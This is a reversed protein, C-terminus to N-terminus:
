WRWVFRSPRRVEPTCQESFSTVDEVEIAFISIDKPLKINLRRGLELATALNIDHPTAAHRTSDLRDSGFKYIQGIKGGETLIADIIIARDYGSLVDLLGLGGMGAEEVIVDPRDIRCQIARAVRIGASDDCLIPNGLGLVLTKM